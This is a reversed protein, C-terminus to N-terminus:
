FSFYVPGPTSLAVVTPVKGNNQALLGSIFNDQDLYLNARDQGLLQIVFKLIFELLFTTGETSWTSGCIIGIDAAQLLKLSAQVNDTKDVLITVRDSIGGKFAQLLSITNPNIVRGSGGVIYM